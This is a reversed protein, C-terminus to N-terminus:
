EYCKKAKIWNFGSEKTITAISLPGGVHKIATPKFREFSIATEGLFSVLEIADQLPMFSEVFNSDLKQFLMDTLGEAKDKTCKGYKVLAICTSSSTGHILRDLAETGEGGYIIGVNNEFWENATFGFEDLTIKWIEPNSSHSSYGVLIIKLPPKTSDRYIVKYKLDFLYHGLKNIIEPLTFNNFNIKWFNDNSNILKKFNQILQQLPETGINNSGYTVMGVPLEEFISYIKTANNYVNVIYPNGDNGPRTITLASDAALVLGAKVKLAIAITM